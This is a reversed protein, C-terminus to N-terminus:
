AATTNWTKVNIKICKVNVANYFMYQLCSSTLSSAYIIFPYSPNNYLRTCGYFMAYYCYIDLTTAPLKINPANPACDPVTTLSTCKYFMQNYCSNALTRAPLAPATVLSTCNYFM